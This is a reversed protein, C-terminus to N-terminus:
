SSNSTYKELNFMKPDIWKFIDTPLFKSMNYAHLNNLDLYIYNTQQQPDCSKLHKNNVKSYKKSIYSIGGGEFFLYMGDGSILELEVKTMNLMADWSWSTCKFLTKPM